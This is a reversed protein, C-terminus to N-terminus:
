LNVDILRAVGAVHVGFRDGDCPRHGCHCFTAGVIAGLEAAAWDRPGDHGKGGVNFSNRFVNRFIQM